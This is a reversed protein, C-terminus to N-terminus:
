MTELGGSQRATSEGTPTVGQARKYSMLHLRGKRLTPHLSGRNWSLLPLHLFPLRPGWTRPVTVQSRVWAPGELSPEPTCPLRLRALRPRRGTLYCLGNGGSPLCGRPHTSVHQPNIVDGPLAPTERNRSLCTSLAESAGPHPPGPGSQKGPVEGHARDHHNQKGKKHSCFPTVSSGGRLFNPRPRLTTRLCHSMCHSLPLLHTIRSVKRHSTQRRGCGPNAPQGPELPAAPGPDPRPM